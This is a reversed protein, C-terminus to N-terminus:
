GPAGHSNISGTHTMALPVSCDGGPWSVLCGSNARRGNVWFPWLHRVLGHMGMVGSLPFVFELGGRGGGGGSRVGPFSTHAGQLGRMDFGGPVWFLCSVICSNGWLVPSGQACTPLSGLVGAALPALRPHPVKDVQVNHKGAKRGPRSEHLSPIRGPM